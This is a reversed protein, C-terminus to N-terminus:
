RREDQPAATGDGPLYLDGKQGCASLASCSLVALLLLRLIPSFLRIPM